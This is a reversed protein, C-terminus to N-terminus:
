RDNEVRVDAAGYGAWPDRTGSLTFWVTKGPATTDVGWEDALQVLLQLGRGTTATTTTHRGIPLTPSGDRVAVRLGRPGAKAVTLSLDTRAHLLANTVLESTLLLATDALGDLGWDALVSRVQRRADVVSRAQPPLEWRREAARDVRM